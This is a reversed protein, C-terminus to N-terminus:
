IDYKLTAKADYGERIMVKMRQIERGLVPRGQRDESSYHSELSIGLVTGVM